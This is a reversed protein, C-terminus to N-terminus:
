KGVGVCKRNFITYTLGVSISLYADKDTINGRQKGAEGVRREAVEGSRDALNHSTSGNGGYFVADVYESHVDDVYDSLTQKYTAEVFFNWKDRMWYKFGLGVPMSLAIRKYPKRGTFDSNLQGETGYDRLAYWDGDLKGKPNFYSLGIGGTLYPTFYHKKSGIIFKKFHLDLQGSAEVMFTRFSLNRTKQYPASSLSDAHQLCVFNAGGRIAIHPSINYRYFGGAAFRTSKPNFNPNLDGVYTATGVWAGIESHRM